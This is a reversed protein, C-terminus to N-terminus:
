IHGVEVMAGAVGKDCGAMIKGGNPYFDVHGCASWLGLGMSLLPKADTHIIDVYYADSADLRVVKPTKDFHPEAPDLGTIRGLEQGFRSKLHHGAYRFFLLIWCLFKKSHRM